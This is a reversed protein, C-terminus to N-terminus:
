KNKELLKLYDEGSKTKLEGTKLLRKMYYAGSHSGVNFASKIDEDTWKKEQQIVEQNPLLIAASKKYWMDVGKANKGVCISHEMIDTVTGLNTVSGIRIAEKM